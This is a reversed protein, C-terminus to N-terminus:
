ADCAGFGSSRFFCAQSRLMVIKMVTYIHADMEEGRRRRRREEEEEGEVGTRAEWPFMTRQHIASAAAYNGWQLVVERETSNEIYRDTNQTKGKRWLQTAESAGASCSSRPKSMLRLGM